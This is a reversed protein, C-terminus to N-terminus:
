SLRVRPVRRHRWPGCAGCPGMTRGTTEAIVLHWRSIQLAPASSTAPFSSLTAFTGSGFPSSETFACIVNYIYIVVCVYIYICM